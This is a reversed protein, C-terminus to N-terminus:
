ELTDRDSKWVFGSEYLQAFCAQILEERERFESSGFETPIWRGFLVHVCTESSRTQCHRDRQSDTQRDKQCITDTWKNRRRTERKKNVSEGDKETVIDGVIEERERERERERDREREGRRAGGTRGARRKIM